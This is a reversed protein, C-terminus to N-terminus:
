TSLMSVRALKTNRPSKSTLILTNSTFSSERVRASNFSHVGSAVSLDSPCFKRGPRGRPHGNDPSRQSDITRIRERVDGLPVIWFRAGRRGSGNAPAVVVLEEPFVREVTGVDIAWFAGALPVDKGVLFLHTPAHLHARGDFM